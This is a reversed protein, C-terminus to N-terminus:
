RRGLATLIDQRNITLIALAALWVLCAMTFLLGGDGLVEVGLPTFLHFSIAGTMVALSAAAGLGLVLPKRLFWGALLLLSAILEVSGVVHASFIGGPAFLGPLGTLGAAWADLTGFIFDTEVSGSFKFFLSQIFVFSIYVCGILTVTRSRRASNTAFASTSM